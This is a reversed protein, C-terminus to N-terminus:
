LVEIKDLDFWQELWKVDYQKPIPDDFQVKFLRGNKERFARGHGHNDPLNIGEKELQVIADKHFKSMGWMYIKKKDYDIFFRAGEGEFRLHKMEKPTPNTYIDIPTKGGFSTLYEEQLYQKFKV